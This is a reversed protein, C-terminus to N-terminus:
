TKLLYEVRKIYTHSSEIMKQNKLKEENIDSTDKTVFDLCLDVIEQPNNSSFVNPFLRNLQKIKDSVLFGNAGLGKFTRENCDLQNVRQYEDHINLAIKSNNLIHNEQEHSM